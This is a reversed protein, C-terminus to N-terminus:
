SRGDRPAVWSKLNWSRTEFGSERWGKEDPHNDRGKLGCRTAPRALGPRQGPSLLGPGEARFPRPLMNLKINRHDEEEGGDNGPWRGPIISGLAVGQTVSM